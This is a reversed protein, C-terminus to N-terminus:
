YTSFKVQYTPLSKSAFIYKVFLTNLFLFYDEIKSLRISHLTITLELGVILVLSLKQQSSPNLRVHKKMCFESKGIYTKRKHSHILAVFDASTRRQMTYIYILYFLCLGGSQVEDPHASSKLKPRIGTGICCCVKFIGQFPCSNCRPGAVPLFFIDQGESRLSAFIITQCNTYPRKMKTVLPTFNNRM